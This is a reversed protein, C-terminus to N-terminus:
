ELEQEDELAVWKGDTRALFLLKTLLCLSIHCQFLAPLAWLPCSRPCPPLWCLVPFPFGHGERLLGVRRM